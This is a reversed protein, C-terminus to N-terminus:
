FSKKKNKTLVHPVWKHLKKMKGIQTLHQIVVFHDANLEKIVERM